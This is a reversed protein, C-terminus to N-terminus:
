EREVSSIGEREEMGGRREEGDFGRLRVVDKESGRGRLVDRVISRRM